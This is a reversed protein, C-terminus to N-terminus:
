APAATRLVTQVRHIVSSMLQELTFTDTGAVEVKSGNVPLLLKRAPARLIAEAIGPTIEGLMAGPLVVNLSAVIMDTAHVAQRIAREGVNVQGAGARRMVAAAAHNTALAILEHQHGIYPQLGEILRRGLGGGRGDIVCLRM